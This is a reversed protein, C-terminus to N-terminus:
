KGDGNWGSFPEDHLNVTVDPASAASCAPASTTGTNASPGRSPAAFVASSASPPASERVNQREPSILPAAFSVASSCAVPCSVLRTRTTPRPSRVFNRTPMAQSTRRCQPASDRYACRLLCRRRMAARLGTVADRLRGRKMTSPARDGCRDVRRGIAGFGFFRDNEVREREYRRGVGVLESDASSSLGAGFAPANDTFGDVQRANKRERRGVVHSRRM